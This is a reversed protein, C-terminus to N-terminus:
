LLCWFTTLVDTVCETISQHAVNKSKVRNSTMQSINSFLRVAVLFRNTLYDNLLQVHSSYFLFSIGRFRM